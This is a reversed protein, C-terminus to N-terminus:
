DVALDSDLDNSAIIKNIRLRFDPRKKNNFDIFTESNNSKSYVNFFASNGYWNELDENNSNYEVFINGNCNHFYMDSFKIKELNEQNVKIKEDLLVAPNFGSIVSKNMDLSANKGVYVAEKILGQNIHAKLNESENVLTLNKANVLTGSKTFDVEEKKDYSIVQLCRSGNRSSIYPSRVALSNNLKSQTGFNFKFDNSNSKYSVLKNLNVEGGWIEFSDGASHSVMINEIVTENGVSALLLGNFNGGGKIRKGAYEIRVYKLIGSNSKPNEGGFNINGYSSPDLQSHFSAVSGNGFKNTPADGLIFLGGWDGARKVSRNSTFVIPDTQEGEAIITAGRSITLSAKTNYDGIIVTGPEITLTVNNAVFVSGLLLYIYKKTLRTDETINGSLIQTPEGYEQSNPVFETWNNLWNMAGVIGKEQQSFVGCITFLFILITITTKKMTLYKFYNFYPKEKIIKGFKFYFVM